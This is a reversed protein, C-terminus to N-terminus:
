ASGQLNNLIGSQLGQDRSGAPRLPLLHFSPSHLCRFHFWPGFSGLRSRARHVHRQWRPAAPSRLSLPFHHECGDGLSCLRYICRRPVHRHGYIHDDYWCRPLRNGHHASDLADQEGTRGYWFLGIPVCVGGVALTPLRNESRPEGGIKDTLYNSPKDSVAGCFIVGALSGVGLGMTALGSSGSGSGYQGGFVRPFTTFCLYLYSCVVAVYLSLSLCRRRETDLASRLSPNGSKKRLRETKRKLLVYPYSEHVFL